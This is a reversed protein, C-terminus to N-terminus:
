AAQVLAELRKSFVGFDRLSTVEAPLKNWENVTRPFFSFKLTNIRAPIEQFSNAHTFRTHKNHSAQILQQSNIRIDGTNIRFLMQLRNIKARVTLPLLNAEILMDTPSFRRGYKNYVFRAAKRQIM